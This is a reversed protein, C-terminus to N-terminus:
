PIGIGISRYTFGANIAEQEEFVKRGDILIPLRMAAGIQALNLKLYSQHKVMVVAADRGRLKEFLDSDYNPVYPDHILVEAGESTLRNVLTESPSNRTDDSDELYSYGMILISAESLRKGHFGLTEVLLDVIHLPMSDNIVRAASILRTKVNKERVGYALLWPDKPICHGGVGAGPLHMQRFPTKNVLERVKWVDGGVAECILAVENAFAIQVDRYANEVTKVLEATVCDTPDLDAQVVNQYLAIMTDSTEPTMGGVVRSLNKLNSLLKGPMVREPCNGLFFDNNLMKGSSEELLPAVVEQMTGPSITSEVIILAGSKMVPGLAKIVSRLAKYRPIHDEDVPTEVDILVIDRDKLRMYDSTACFRRQGVVRNLLDALGPEDGEIPSLGANIREVRDAQIEVGLVDYGVDAFQCAVPLGVYGLGIIAIKATKQEVQSKLELLSM